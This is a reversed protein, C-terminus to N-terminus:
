PERNSFLPLDYIHRGLKQRTVIEKEQFGGSGTDCLCQSCIQCGNGASLRWGTSDAEHIHKNMGQQEQLGGSGADLLCQSCIQCGNGASLSRRTSDAKDGRRHM